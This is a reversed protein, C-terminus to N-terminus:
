EGGFRAGLVGNPYYYRMGKNNIETRSGDASQGNFEAVGSRFNLRLLPRGGYGTADSDLYDRFKASGISANRVLLDDMFVQNGQVVFPLTVNAGNGLAYEAQDPYIPPPIISKRTRLREAWDPCATTWTM